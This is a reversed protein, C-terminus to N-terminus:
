GFAEAM